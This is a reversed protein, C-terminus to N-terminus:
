EDTHDRRSAVAGGGDQTAWKIRIDAAGSRLPRGQQRRLARLIAVTSATYAM